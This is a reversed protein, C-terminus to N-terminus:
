FFMEACSLANRIFPSAFRVFINVDQVTTCLSLTMMEYDVSTSSRTLEHM